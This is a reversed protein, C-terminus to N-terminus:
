KRKREIVILFSGLNDMYWADIFKHQKYYVLENILPYAKHYTSDGDVVPYERMSLGTTKAVNALSDDFISRNQACIKNIINKNIKKDREREGEITSEYKIEKFDKLLDSFTSDPYISSIYDKYMKNLISDTLVIDNVAFHLEGPKSIYITREKGIVEIDKTLMEECWDKLEKHTSDASIIKMLLIGEPVDKCLRYQMRLVDRLNEKYQQGETGVWKDIPYSNITSADVLHHIATFSSGSARITLVDGQEVKIGSNAWLDATNFLWYIVDKDESKVISAGQINTEILNYPYFKKISIVVFALGIFLIIIILFLSALVRWLKNPDNLLEFLQQHRKVTIEIKPQNEPTQQQNSSQQNETPQQNNPNEASPNNNVNEEM